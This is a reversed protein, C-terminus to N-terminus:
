LSALIGLKALWDEDHRLTLVHYNTNYKLNDREIKDSLRKDPSDHVSGDCFIAIEPSDYIFDPKCNAEAIFVQTADPLKYGRQYIEALVVREFESNPDTQERLKQYQEDRSAEGAQYVVCSKQLEELWPLILHRNILPHDFQNRYSLLCEYCAQICTDKPHNFHCIDLAANAIKAFAHSNELIQSLVGAGGEAAEWFLLYKGGGLRDRM